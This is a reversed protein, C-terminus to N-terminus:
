LAKSINKYLDSYDLAKKYNEEITKMYTSYWQPTLASLKHVVEDVNESDLIIWGCTDFYEDINPCGYYVPITKMLLCDLLKESFYYKQRSNEIVISFQFTEFLPLKSEGLTPNNEIDPLTGINSKYFVHPIPIRKQNLYLQIRFVHGPTSQKVGTISSLKFQKKSVDVNTYEHPKIWTTGYVYKVANPCHKLIHEDFTLIKTYKKCNALIYSRIDFKFMNEFIALPEVVVFINDAHAVITNLSDIHFVTKRNSVYKLKSVVFWNNNSLAYLM